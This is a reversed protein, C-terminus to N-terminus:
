VVNKKRGKTYKNNHPSYLRTHEAKPLCELNSIDNNTKVEDKHHIDWGDPIPGNHFEWVDRHMLQKDGHTKRYYGYYTKTYRCGNFVLYPKRKPPRLGLGREAFMAYVNQRTVGYEKGVESISKGTQYLLYMEAARSDKRRMTM